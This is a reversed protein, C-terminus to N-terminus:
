KILEQYYVLRGSNTVGQITIWYGRAKDNNYFVIEQKDKEIGIDLLPKWYLTARIDSGERDEMKDYNVYQFAKIGAYGKLVQYDLKKGFEKDMEDPPLLYVAVAAGGGPVGPFGYDFVKIYAVQSFDTAMFDAIEDKFRLERENVFLTYGRRVQKSNIAMFDLFTTPYKRVRENNQIDFTELAPLQFLTSAYKKDLADLRREEQTKSIVVARLIRNGDQGIEYSALDWKIDLFSPKLTNELKWSPVYLQDEQRVPIFHYAIDYDMFKFERRIQSFRFEMSDFFHLDKIEFRGNTDLYMKKYVFPLITDAVPRYGVSIGPNGKEGKKLKNIEKWYRKWDEEKMSVKGKPYLLEDYQAVIQNGVSFDSKWDVTQMFPDLSYNNFPIKPLLVMDDSLSNVLVDQVINHVTDVPVTADTISISLNAQEREPLSVTFTNRGKKEKSTEAFDLEPKLLLNDEGIMLARRSIMEGNEDLLFFQLVGYELGKNPLKITKTNEQNLSVEQVFVERHNLRCSVTFTEKLMQAALVSISITDSREEISLKVGNTEAKPVLKRFERGLEDFWVITYQEGDPVFRIEGLGTEDTEFSVIKREQEDVMKGHIKIPAGGKDHGRLTMANNIDALLRGGEPYVSLNYVNDKKDTEANAKGLIPISRYYSLNRFDGLEGTFANLNLEQYGYEAPVVFQCPAVGNSALYVNNEIVKGTNDGWDIYLNRVSSDLLGETLIYAKFWITDGPFYAGRDTHIYVTPITQSYLSLPFIVLAFYVLLNNIRM